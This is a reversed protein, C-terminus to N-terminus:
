LITASSLVSNQTFTSTITQGNVTATSSVNIDQRILGVNPAFYRLGTGTFPVNIGQITLTGTLTIRTVAVNTFSGFPVTLLSFPLAEFTASISGTVNGVESDVFSISQNSLITESTGPIHPFMLITEESSLETDDVVGDLEIPTSVGRSTVTATSNGDISSTINVTSTGGSTSTSGITITEAFNTTVEDETQQIQYVYQNGQTTPIYNGTDGPGASTQGVSSGASTLFSNLGTEGSLVSGLTTLTANIDGSASGGNITTINSALRLAEVLDEIENQTFNSYPQGSTVINQYIVEAEPVVDVESGTVIAHIPAGGNVPLRVALSSSNTINLSDLDFSYRGNSTTTTSIVSTVNGGGDLQVLEIITNDPVDAIGALDAIATPLVWNLLKDAITPNAISAVMGNPTMVDGSVVNSQPSSLSGGGGGGGGCASLSLLLSAAVINQKKEMTVGKYSIMFTIVEILPSVSNKSM